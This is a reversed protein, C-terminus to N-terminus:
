IGCSLTRDLWIRCIALNSNGLGGCLSLVRMTFFKRASVQFKGDRLKHGIAACSQSSNSDM